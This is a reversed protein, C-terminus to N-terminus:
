YGKKNRKNKMNKRASYAERRVPAMSKFVQWLRHAMAMRLPHTHVKESGPSRTEPARVGYWKIRSFSARDTERKMRVYESDKQLVSQRHLGQGGGHFSLCGVRSHIYVSYRQKSPSQVGIKSCVAGKKEQVLSLLLLFIHCISRGQFGVEGTLGRSYFM